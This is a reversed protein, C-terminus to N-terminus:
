DRAHGAGGTPPTPSCDAKLLMDTFLALATVEDSFQQERCLKLTRVGCEVAATPVLSKEVLAYGDPVAARSHAPSAEEYAAICARIGRLKGSPRDSGNRAKEFLELYEKDSVLAVPEAQAQSQESHQLYFHCLQEVEGRTIGDGRLISEALSRTIQAM